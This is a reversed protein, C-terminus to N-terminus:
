SPDDPAVTDDELLRRLESEWVDDLPNFPMEIFNEGLREMYEHVGVQPALDAMENVKEEIAKIVQKSKRELDTLSFRAKLWYNIRQMVNLWAMYDNEIRIASNRQTFTSFDYMPVFAYLGIFSIGRDGARRCIYSGISAGGHYDSLNVALREVDKKMSPLSYIGGVMREKDYPLEGYVGGLGVIRTVGLEEAADLLATTYREIDLHPEDGIFIVVGSQEDGTYFFENRRVELSKPYGEDFKVIPRVLDHTGPIQFLYFGDSRIEGIRRAHNQQILYQPLGSSVSGGDAWQHWGAIMTINASQPREWLKVADSM